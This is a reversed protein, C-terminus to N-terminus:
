KTIVNEHYPNRTQCILRIQCILGISKIKKKKMLKKRGIEEKLIM